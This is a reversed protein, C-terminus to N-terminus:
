DKYQARGREVREEDVANATVEQEAADRFKVFEKEFKVAVAGTAGGRIKEGLIYSQKIVDRGNEKKFIHYLLMATDADQEIQSAWQFDGVTPKRNDAERNLQALAVVPIDLRRALGKLEKSVTAVETKRDECGPVTVIQIYDVFLVKIDHRRKMVTATSILDNLKINPEDYFVLKSDYYKSASGILRAREEETLDGAVIKRGDIRADSSLLRDFLEENASEASIMGAPLKETIGCHGFMNLALATKGQSPRAGIVYFQRNRFGQTLRDLRSIGTSIGPLKGKNRIREEVLKIHELAVDSALAIKKVTATGMIDLFATEVKNMIDLPSDGYESARMINALSILERRGWENLIWNHYFSWNAATSTVDSVRAIWEAPIGSCRTKITLINVPEDDRVMDHIAEFVRGAEISLFCRRTLKTEIIIAPKLMLQCVYAEEYEVIKIARDREKLEEMVASKEM